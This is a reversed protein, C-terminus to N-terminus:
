SPLIRFDDFDFFSRGSDKDGAPLDCTMHAQRYKKQAMALSIRQFLFHLQCISGIKM